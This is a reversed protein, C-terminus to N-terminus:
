YIQFSELSLLGSSWTFVYDVHFVKGFKNYRVKLNISPIIQGIIAKGREKGRNSSLRFM